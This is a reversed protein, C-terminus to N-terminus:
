EKLMSCEEELGECVKERFENLYRFLYCVRNEDNKEKVTYCIM